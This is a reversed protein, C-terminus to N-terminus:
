PTPGGITPIAANQRLETVDQQMRTIIAEVVALRTWMQVGLALIVVLQGLFTCAITVRDTTSLRVSGADRM